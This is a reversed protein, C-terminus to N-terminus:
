SRTLEPAVLSRELVLLGALPYRRRLVTLRERFLESACRKSSMASSSGRSGGCRGPMRELAGEPVLEGRRSSGPKSMGLRGGMLPRAFEVKSPGVERPETPRESDGAEEVVMGRRVRTGVSGVGIRVPLAERRLVLLGGGGRSGVVVVVAAVVELM